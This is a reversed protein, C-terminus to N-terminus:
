CCTHSPTSLFYFVFMELEILEDWESAHLEKTLTDRFMVVRQKDFFNM